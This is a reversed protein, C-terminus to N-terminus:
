AARRRRRFTAGLALAGLAWLTAASGATGNGVSCGSSETDDGAAHEQRRPYKGSWDRELARLFEQEADTEAKPRPGSTEPGNTTPVITASAPRVGGTGCSKNLGEVMKGLAAPDGLMDNHSNATVLNLVFNEVNPGEDQFGASAGALFDGTAVINTYCVSPDADRTKISHGNALLRVFVGPPESHSGHIGPWYDLSFLDSVFGSGILASIDPPLMPGFLAQATHIIDDFTIGPFITRAMMILNPLYIDFDFTKPVGLHAYPHHLGGFSIANHVKAGGGKKLIFNAIVGTGASHGVMDVKKAGTKQLVSDVFRGIEDGSPDLHAQGNAGGPREAGYNAAYACFGANRLADSVGNMGGYNGGQGHVLVVPYPHEKTPKCDNIIGVAGGEVLPGATATGSSFLNAALLVFATGLKRLM